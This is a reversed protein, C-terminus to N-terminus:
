GPVVSDSPMRLGYHDDTGKTISLSNCDVSIMWLCALEITHPSSSPRGNRITKSITATGKAIRLCDLGIAHVSLCLRRGGKDFSEFTQRGFSSFDGRSDRSLCTQYCAFVTV